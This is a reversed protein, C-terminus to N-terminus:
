KMALEFFKNLVGQISLRELGCLDVTICNRFEEADRSFPIRILDGSLVNAGKPASKPCAATLVAGDVILV